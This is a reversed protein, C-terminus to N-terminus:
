KSRYLIITTVSFSRALLLDFRALRPKRNPLVFNLQVWYFGTFGLSWLPALSCRSSSQEKFSWSNHNNSLFISCSALWVPCSSAEPQTANSYSFLFCSRTWRRWYFRFFFEAVRRLAVRLGDDDLWARSGSMTVATIPKNTETIVTSTTLSFCFLVFCFLFLPLTQWRPASMSQISEVTSSTGM